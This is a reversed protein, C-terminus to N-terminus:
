RSARVFFATAKKPVDREERLQAVEKRLREVEIQLAEEALPERVSVGYKAQWSFLLSKPVGHEAAISGVTREGRNAMLRVMDRKFTEAYKRTKRKTGKNM